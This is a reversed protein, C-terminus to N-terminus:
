TVGNWEATLTRLSPVGGLGYGGDAYLTAGTVYSASPSLLYALVDAIEEPRGPRGLPTHRTWERVFEASAGAAMPTPVFGPCVCNVRIGHWGVSAALARSYQAMAAKSAGYDQIHRVTVDRAVLSSVGVIAGPVRAEIWRQVLQECAAVYGFLNVTYDPRQAIPGAPRYTVSGASYLLADVVGAAEFGRDVVERVSTEDAADCPLVWASRGLGRIQKAVLELQGTRRSALVVDNGRRAVELAGAAGIGSSAGIVLVVGGDRGADVRQSRGSDVSDAHSAESAPAANRGLSLGGDCPIVQGVLYSPRPSLLLELAGALDEPRAPRRIALHGLLDAEAHPPLTRGLFPALGLSVANAHVGDRAATAALRTWWALDEAHDGLDAVLAM